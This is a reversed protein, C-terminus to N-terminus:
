LYCKGILTELVEKQRNMEASQAAYGVFWADTGADYGAYLAAAYVANGASRAAYSASEAASQAAFNIASRAAYSASEAASQASAKAAGQASVFGSRDSLDSAASLASEAALKDLFKNNESQDKQYAEAAEIAKYPRNDRPSYSRYNILCHNACDIAFALFLKKTDIERILRIKQAAFYNGDQVIKGRAEVEFLRGEAKNQRYASLPDSSAHFGIEWLKPEEKITYLKGVKGEKVQKIGCYSEPNDTVFMYGKVAVGSSSKNWMLIDLLKKM